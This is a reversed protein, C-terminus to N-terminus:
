TGPSFLLALLRWVHTWCVGERWEAKHSHTEQRSPEKSRDGKEGQQGGAEATIELSMAFSKTWVSLLEWEGDRSASLM